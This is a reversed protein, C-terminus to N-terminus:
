IMGGAALISGFLFFDRTAPQTEVAEVTSIPEKAQNSSSRGALLQGLRPFRRFLATLVPSYYGWLYFKPGADQPDRRQLRRRWVRILLLDLLVALILVIGCTLYRMVM